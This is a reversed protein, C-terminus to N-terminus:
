PHRRSAQWSSQGWLRIRASGCRNARRHLSLGPGISYGPCLDKAFGTRVEERAYDALAYVHTKLSGLHEALVAAEQDSLLPLPKPEFAGTAHTPWSTLCHELKEKAAATVEPQPESGKLAVFEIPLVIATIKEKKEAAASAM